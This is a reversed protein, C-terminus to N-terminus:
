WFGFRIWYCGVCNLIINVETSESFYLLFKFLIFIRFELLFLIEGGSQRKDAQIRNKNTAM